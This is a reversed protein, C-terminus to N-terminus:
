RGASARARLRLHRLDLPRFQALVEPRDAGVLRRRLRHGGQEERQRGRCRRAGGGFEASGHDRRCERHRVMQARDGVGVDPKNQHDASIIEVPVGLKRRSTTSPWDAGRDGLGRGPLRRLREVHREHNRDQASARGAGSRSAARRALAAGALLFQRRNTATSIRMREERHAIKQRPGGDRRGSRRGIDFRTQGARDASPM